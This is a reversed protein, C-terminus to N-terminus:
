WGRRWGIGGGFGVGYGYGPGPGYLTARRDASRDLDINQLCKSFADSGPRFGYGRCRAEDYGRVEATSMCGGLSGFLGALLLLRAYSM